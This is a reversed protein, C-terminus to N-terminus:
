TLKSSLLELEVSGMRVNTDLNLVDKGLQLVLEADQDGEEAVLLGEEVRHETSATSEIINLSALLKKAALGNDGEAELPLIAVRALGHELFSFQM